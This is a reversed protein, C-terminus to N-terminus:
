GHGVWLLLVGFFTGIINVWVPLQNYTVDVLISLFYFIFIIEGVIIIVKRQQIDPKVM